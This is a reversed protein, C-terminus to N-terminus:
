QCICSICAIMTESWLFYTHVDFYKDDIDHSEEILELVGLFSIYRPTTWRHALKGAIKIMARDLVPSYKEIEQQMSLCENLDGGLLLIYRTILPAKLIFVVM